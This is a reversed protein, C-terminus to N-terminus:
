RILSFKGTEKFNLLRKRTYEIYTPIFEKEEATTLKILDNLLVLQRGVLLLNFEEDSISPIEAKSEYGRMVFKERDSNERMYFISNVLDQIPLGVGADDFDIIALGESTRITNFTHLDAHLLQPKSRVSIREFVEEVLDFHEFILGEVEDDFLGDHNHLNDASNLLTRNILPFERLLEQLLSKSSLQLKAMVSGLEFLDEDSPNEGVVTGDIWGFLVARLPSTHFESNVIAFAEGSTTRRPLPAIVNSEQQLLELWKIEAEIQQPNKQSNINIRLAYVQKDQTTVRFTSNFSHNVNEFNCKTMGFQRLLDPVLETLLSIQEEQNLEEFKM